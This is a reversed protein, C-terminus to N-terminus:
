FEFIAPFPTPLFSPFINVLPATSSLRLAAAELPLRPSLAGGVFKKATVIGQGAVVAKVANFGLSRRFVEGWEDLASSWAEVSNEASECRKVLTEILALREGITDANLFINAEPAPEVEDLALGPRGRARGARTVAETQSFGMEVLGGVLESYPVASFPVKVTRSQVTGPVRALDEAVCVFVAGAPPEELVKLIANMGYDNLRDLNPIYMVMRPASMPRGALRARAKKVAEVSVVNKGEEAELIIVDPHASLSCQDDPMVGLLSRVFFDAVRRKGLHAPGIFLYGSAPRKVWAELLRQIIAHGIIGHEM